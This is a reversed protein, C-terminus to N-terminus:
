TQFHQGWRKICNTFAVGWHENTKQRNSRIKKQVPEKSEPEAPSMASQRKRGANDRRDIKEQKVPQHPLLRASELAMAREGTEGLNAQSGPQHRQNAPRRIVPAKIGPFLQTKDR